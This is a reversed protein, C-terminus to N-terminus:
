PNRIPEGWFDDPPFYPDDLTGSLWNLLIKGTRGNGDRFPHITEFQWYWDLPTRESAVLRAILEPVREPEPPTHNAVLVRCRRFGDANLHREVLKGIQEISDVTPGRGAESELRAYAWGSTMWLERERDGEHGQRAVEEAIYEDITWHKTM